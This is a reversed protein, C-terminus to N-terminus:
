DLLLNKASKSSSDRNASHTLFHPTFLTKTNDNWINLGEISHKQILLPVFIIM